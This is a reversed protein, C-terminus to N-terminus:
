SDLEYDEIEFSFKDNFDNEVCESIYGRKEDEDMENWDEELYDDSPTITTEYEDIKNFEDDTVSWKVTIKLDEFEM